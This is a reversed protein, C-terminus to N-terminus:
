YQIIEILDKPLIGKIDELEGRSVYKSLAKLAGQILETVSDKTDFRYRKRFEDYFEEQNMKVPVQSPRWGEYYIGRVLMPLQAAFHVAENIPLRDRLLHLVTRLLDYAQNRRGEWGFRKEIAELILNTEQLTTDFSDLGTTSM